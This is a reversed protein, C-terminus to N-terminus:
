ARALALGRRPLTHGGQQEEEDGQRVQTEARYFYFSQKKDRGIELINGIYSKQFWFLLFYSSASHCRTLLNTRSFAYFTGRLMSLVYSLQHLVLM